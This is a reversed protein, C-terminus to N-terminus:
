LAVPPFKSDTSHHSTLRPSGRKWSIAPRSSCWITWHDGSHKQHWVHGNNVLYWNLVIYLLCNAFLNTRQNKIEIRRSQSEGLDFYGLYGSTWINEQVNPAVIKPFRLSTRSSFFTGFVTKFFACGDRHLKWKKVAWRHVWVRCVKSNKWCTEPWKSQLIDVIYLTLVVYLFRKTFLHMERNKIALERIQSRSDTSKSM